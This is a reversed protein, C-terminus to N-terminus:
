NEIPNYQLEIENLEVGKAKAKEAAEIIQDVVHDIQDEPVSTQRRVEQALLERLKERTMRSGKARSSM